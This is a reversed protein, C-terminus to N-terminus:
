TSKTKRFKIRSFNVVYIGAVVFSGGIMHLLTLQEHLILAAMLATIVPQGLLTPSVISAPLYGQSFNILFWGIVQVGLGLALFIIWTNVPYGTFGYNFVLVLIFLVLSSSATTIFLYSLTDMLKRGAQSFLYFAGYFLGAGLGLLAGKIINGSSYFDEFFMVPLGSVALLLGIWFGPKHKEKFIFMSGIGVWIPAMNAMLTPLTANSAVVGTSWLAMDFGFCIGAAIALLIGKLPIQKKGIFVHFVFPVVLIVAGMSMRYFTTVVGPAESSKILIAANSMFLLGTILATYSKYQNEPQIKL